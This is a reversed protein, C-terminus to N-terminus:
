ENKQLFTSFIDYENKDIKLESQGILPIGEFNKEKLFKTM